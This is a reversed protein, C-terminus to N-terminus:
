ENHNLFWNQTLIHFNSCYQAKNEFDDDKHPTKYILQSLIALSFSFFILM